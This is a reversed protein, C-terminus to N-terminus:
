RRKMYKPAISKLGRRLFFSLVLYVAAALLFTEFSRFNESQIMNVVYSLEEMSIQSCVSTELLNLVFQGGIALWVKSLAPPLIIRFFIQSRSLALSQAAEIQGKPTAEIGARVIETMYASLHMTLAIISAVPPSLKIGLSPLGFFIFFLQVLFPTNRFFEIYCGLIFSVWKAGYVRLWAFGIAAATGIVTSIIALEVTHFLGTWLVDQYQVIWSFDLKM